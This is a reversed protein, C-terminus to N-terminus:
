EQAALRERKCDAVGRAWDQWDPQSMQMAAGLLGFVMFGAGPAPGAERTCQREAAIQRQATASCGALAVALALSLPISRRM